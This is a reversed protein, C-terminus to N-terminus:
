SAARASSRGLTGEVSYRTLTPGGVFNQTEVQTLARRQSDAAFLPTGGGLVVPFRILRLEDVHGAAITLQAAQAGAFLALPRAAESKLGPIDDTSIVHSNAWGTEDEGRTLVYKPTEQV